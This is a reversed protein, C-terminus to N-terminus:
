VWIAQCVKQKQPRCQGQDRTGVERQEHTGAGAGAAVETSEETQAPLMGLHDRPDEGVNSMLWGESPLLLRGQLETSSRTGVPGPVTTERSSKPTRSM